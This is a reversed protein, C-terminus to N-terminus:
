YFRFVIVEFFFRLENIKPFEDKIRRNYESIM